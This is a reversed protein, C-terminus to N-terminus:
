RGRSGLEERLGDLFFVPVPTRSWDLRGAAVGSVPFHGSQKIQRRQTKANVERDDEDGQDFTEEKDVKKSREGSPYQTRSGWVTGEM